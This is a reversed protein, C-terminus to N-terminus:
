PKGKLAQGIERDDLIGFRRMIRQQSTEECAVCECPRRNGVNVVLCVHMPTTKAYSLSGHRLLYKCCSYATMHTSLGGLEQDASKLIGRPLLTHPGYSMTAM